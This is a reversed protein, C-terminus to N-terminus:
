CDRLTVTLTVPYESSSLDQKAGAKWTVPLTGNLVNAQTGSTIEKDALPTPDTGVVQDGSSAPHLVIDGDTGNNTFTGVDAKLEIGEPPNVTAVSVIGSLAGSPFTNGSVRYNVTQSSSQAGAAPTHFTLSSSGADDAVSLSSPVVVVTVQHSTEATAAWAAPPILGLGLFLFAAAGGRTAARRHSVAKQARLTETAPSGSRPGM